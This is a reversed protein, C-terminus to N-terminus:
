TPAVRSNTAHRAWCSRTQASRGLRSSRGDGRDCRDTGVSRLMAMRERSPLLDAICLVLLFAAVYVYRSSRAYDVALDARAVGIGVYMSVVGVLAGVALGQPHGRVIRRAAIAGLCAFVVLGLVGGTPLRVVGAMAEVAYGTGRLAFRLLRSPGALEGTTGLADRGALFHWVLYAVLPPVVALM